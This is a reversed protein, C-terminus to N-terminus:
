SAVGRMAALEIELGPECMVSRRRVVAAAAYVDFSERGLFDRLKVAEELPWTVLREFTLVLLPRSGIVRMAVARDATMKRAMVRRVERSSDVPGTLAEIFKMMSRTQEGPSRDLWIVRVDGPLGVRQPDLIKVAKGAWSAIDAPQVATKVRVDEFAPARGVCEVGGAALMQM